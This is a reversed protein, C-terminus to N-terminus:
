GRKNQARFPDCNAFGFQYRAQTDGHVSRGFMVFGGAIVNSMVDAAMSNSSAATHPPDNKKPSTAM